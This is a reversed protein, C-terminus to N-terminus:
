KNPYYQVNIRVKLGFKLRYNQAHVCHALCWKIYERSSQPIPNTGGKEQTENNTVMGQIPCKIAM